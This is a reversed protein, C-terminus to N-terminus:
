EGDKEPYIRVAKRSNLWRFLADFRMRRSVRGAERRDREKEARRVRFRSIVRKM